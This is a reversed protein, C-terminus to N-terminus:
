LGGPPYKSDGSIHSGRKLVVIEPSCKAFAWPVQVNGKNTPEKLLAQGRQGKGGVM